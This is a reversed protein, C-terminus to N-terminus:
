KQTRAEEAEYDWQHKERVEGFWLEGPLGPNPVLSIRWRYGPDIPPSGASFVYQVGHAERTQRFRTELDPHDEVFYMPDPYLLRQWVRSFWFEPTRNLWIFRSGRPAIRRIEALQEHVLAPVQRQQAWANATRIERSYSLGGIVTGATLVIGALAGAIRGIFEL